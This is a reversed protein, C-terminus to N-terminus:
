CPTNPRSAGSPFKASGCVGRRGTPAILSPKPECVADPRLCDKDCDCLRACYGLDGDGSLTAPDLFCYNALPTRSSTQGCAATGYSCVGSCESYSGGHEICGGSCTAATVDCASGIPDTGAGQDGCMGTKLDCVRGGCDINSRCAPLCYGAGSGAPSESCVLDVRGRCKDLENPQTGHKCGPLCYSVDDSKVDPTGGDYLVICKSTADIDKCFDHDPLCQALCIGGSPGEGGILKSDSTICDFGKRCSAASTCAAGLLGSNPGNAPFPLTGCVCEGYAKGDSECVQFGTCGNGACAISQGPVCTATAPSGCESLALAALLLVLGSLMSGLSRM